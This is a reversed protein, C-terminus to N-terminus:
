CLVGHEPVFLKPTAPIAGLGEEPISMTPRPGSWCGWHSISFCFDGLTEVCFLVQVVGTANGSDSRLAMSRRPQGQLTSLPELPSLVSKSLM